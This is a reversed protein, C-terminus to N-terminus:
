VPGTVTLFIHEYLRNKSMKVCQQEKPKIIKAVKTGDPLLQTLVEVEPNKATGNSMASKVLAEM